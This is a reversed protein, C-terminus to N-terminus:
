REEDDETLDLVKLLSATPIMWCRKSIKLVPVPFTGRHIADYAKGRTIGLAEAAVDVTVTLGQERLKEPAWAVRVARTM